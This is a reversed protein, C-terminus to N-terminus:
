QSGGGNANAGALLGGGADAGGLITKVARPTGFWFRALPDYRQMGLKRGSWGRAGAREPLRGGYLYDDVGFHLNAMEGNTKGRVINLPSDGIAKLVPFRDLYPKYLRQAGAHHGRGEYPEAWHAALEPPLKTADIMKPVVGLMRAGDVAEGGLPLSAANFLLEGDNMGVKFTRGLEGSATDAAPTATPDLDLRWKHFTNQVDDGLKGPHHVRDDAYALLGQGARLVQAQASEGPPERLPDTPDALRVALGAGDWLGGM